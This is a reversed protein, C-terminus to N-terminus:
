LRVREDPPPPAYVLKRIQRFTRLTKLISFPGDPAGVEWGGKIDLILGKWFPYKVFKRTDHIEEAPSVAITLGNELFYNNIRNEFQFRDTERFPVKCFHERDFIRTGSVAPVSQLLSRFIWPQSGKDMIVM